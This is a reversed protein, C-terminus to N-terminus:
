EGLRRMEAEFSAESWRAGSADRVQMENLRAVVAALTDAGAAFVQELADALRNEFETPPAARTQWELNQAQEISGRGGRAPAQRLFPNHDM